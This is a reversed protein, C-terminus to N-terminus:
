AQAQAAVIAGAHSAARLLSDQSLHSYRQTMVVSAHGLIKQVEYLSCGANVLFSAFSHRLDHVRVESLGAVTRATDWSSFISVYPKLTKPNAFIWDCNRRRPVTDLLTIAAASLPVHRERGSKTIPIRWFSRERDVDRWQANLVERKRAGTLLLFPIIYRLMRNPSANVAVILQQTEAASLYRERHNSLRKIKHTATPNSVVGATHWRIALNFMYRLLILLRNVTAASLRQGARTLVRAVDDSNVADMFVTGVVPLIHNRFLSEDTDWSRKYSKIYPLYSDNFFEAVSVSNRLEDRQKGPDEGMAIKNRARDCLQQAQQPTVDAANALKFLRQRGRDDRYSLYYTKGGTSRVEICLGRCDTDRYFERGQASTCKLQEISRKNFSIKV